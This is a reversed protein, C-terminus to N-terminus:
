AAGGAMAPEAPEAPQGTLSLFVDDLSPERVSFGVPEIGHRDLSRLLELVAHTGDTVSVSLGSAAHRHVSGVSQPIVGAASSATAEDTFGLEVVTSGLKGKLETATGSAILRGHDIVAIHDALRDAEEL